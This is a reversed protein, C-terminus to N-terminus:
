SDSPRSPLRDDPSSKVLRIRRGTEQVKSRLSNLDPTVALSAKEHDADFPLSLEGSPLVRYLAAGDVDVGYIGPDYSYRTTDDRVLAAFRGLAFLAAAVQHHNEGGHVVWGVTIEDGISEPYAEEVSMTLHLTRWSVNPDDFAVLDADKGDRIAEEARGIYGKGEEVSTIRGIVLADAPQYGLTGDDATWSVNPMLEDVSRYWPRWLQQGNRENVASALTTLAQESPKAPVTSSGGGCASSVVATAIVLGVAAHRRRERLNLGRTKVNIQANM